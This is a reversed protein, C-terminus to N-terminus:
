RALPRLLLAPSGVEFQRRTLRRRRDGVLRYHFYPVEDRTAALHPAFLVPAFLDRRDIGSNAERDGEPGVKLEACETVLREGRQAHGHRRHRTNGQPFAALAVRATREPVPGAPRPRLSM